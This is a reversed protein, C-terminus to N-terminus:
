GQLLLVSGGILGVVIAVAFAIGTAVLVLLLAARGRHEFGHLVNIFHMLCWLQLVLGVIVAIGTFLPSIISLAVQLLFLVLVAAQFWTILALTDPFTGSGGMAQGTFYTAFVFLVTFAGVIGADTFPTGGLFEVGETPGVVAKNLSFALVTLITVLTLASWLVDRPWRHRMILRAVADPDQVTRGLLTLFSSFDTKM